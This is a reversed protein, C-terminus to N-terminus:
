RNKSLKKWLYFIMFFSLIFVGSLLKWERKVMKIIELTNTDSSDIMLYVLEKKFLCSIIDKTLYSQAFLKINDIDKNNLTKPIFKNLKLVCNKTQNNFFTLIIDRALDDRDVIKFKDLLIETIPVIKSRIDSYLNNLDIKIRYENDLTEIEELHKNVLPYIIPYLTDNIIGNAVELNM